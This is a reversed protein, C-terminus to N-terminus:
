FIICLVKEMLYIMYISARVIADKLHVDHALRFVQIVYVNELAWESM